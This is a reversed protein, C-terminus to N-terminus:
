HHCAGGRVKGLRIEEAWARGDEREGAYHWWGKKGSGSLGGWRRQRATKNGCIRREAGSGTGGVSSGSGLVARERTERGSDVVQIRPVVKADRSQQCFGLLASSCFKFFLYICQMHVLAEQVLICVSRPFNWQFAFVKLRSHGWYTGRPKTRCGDRKRVFKRIQSSSPGCFIPLYRLKM